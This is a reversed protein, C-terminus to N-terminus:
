VYSSGYIKLEKPGAVKGGKVRAIDYAYDVSSQPISKERKKGDEGIVWFENGYGEIEAGAYHKGSSGGAASVTYRFKVGPTKGRGSTMFPYGSFLCICKWLALKQEEVAGSELAMLLDSM